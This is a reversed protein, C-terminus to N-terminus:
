ALEPVFLFELTDRTRLFLFTTVKREYNSKFTEVSLWKEVEEHVQPSM